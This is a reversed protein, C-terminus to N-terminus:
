LSKQAPNRVAKEERQRVTSGLVRVKFLIGEAEIRKRLREVQEASLQSPGRAIELLMPELEDLVGAVRGDGTRAATQRYLRNAAVLDGARERESSMDLSEGPKANVLEVLVMQSRELHDGVAVLLIRERVKGPASATTVQTNRSPYFRGALFAGALLAAMGTAAAWHRLPWGFFDRRKRGGISPALRNWVQTGYNAARAPVPLSDVVNLVRQLGAYEARCAECADLHQRVSPSGDGEGYYYLVLEEESLHKM